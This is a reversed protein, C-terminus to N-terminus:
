ITLSTIYDVPLFAFAFVFPFKFDFACHLSLHFPFGCQDNKHRQLLGVLYFHNVNLCIYVYDYRYVSLDNLCQNRNLVSKILIGRSVLLSCPSYFHYNAYYRTIFSLLSLSWYIVLYELKLRLHLNCYGDGNCVKYIPSYIKVFRCKDM